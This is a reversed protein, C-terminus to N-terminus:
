SLKGCIQSNVLRSDKPVDNWSLFDKHGHGGVVYGRGTTENFLAVLSGDYGIPNRKDEAKSVVVHVRHGITLEVPSIGVGFSNDIFAIRPKGESEERISFSHVYPCNRSHNCVHKDEVIGSLSNEYAKIGELGEFM